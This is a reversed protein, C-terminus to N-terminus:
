ATFGRLLWTGTPDELFLPSVPLGWLCAAWHAGLVVLVLCKLLDITSYNVAMETEWRTLIRAMKSLRLLRLLRLARLLRLPTLSQLTSLNEESEDGTAGASSSAMSM